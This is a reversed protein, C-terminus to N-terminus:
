FFWEQYTRVKFAKKGTNLDCQAKEFESDNGSSILGNTETEELSIEKIWVTGSFL